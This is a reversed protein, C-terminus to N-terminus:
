LQPSILSCPEKVTMVPEPERLIGGQMRLTDKKGRGKWHRCHLGEQVEGSRPGEQWGWLLQFVEETQNSKENSVRSTAKGGTAKSLHNIQGLNTTSGSQALM